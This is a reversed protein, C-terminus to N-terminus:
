CLVILWVDEADKRHVDHLTTLKRKSAMTEVGIAKKGEMIVRTVCHDTLITLNSPVEALYASAATVRRGKHLTHPSVGMGLPNGSNMDLNITHQGSRLLTNGILRVCVFGSSNPQM